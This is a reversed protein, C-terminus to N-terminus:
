LNHRRKTLWFDPRTCGRRTSRLNLPGFRRCLRQLTTHPSSVFHIKLVSGAAARNTSFFFKRKALGAPAPQTTCAAAQQSLLGTAAALLLVPLLLFVPRLVTDLGGNGILSLALVKSQRAPIRWIPAGLFEATRRWEIPLYSQITELM